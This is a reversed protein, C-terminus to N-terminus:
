VHARGIERALDFPIPQTAGGYRSSISIPTENLYISITSDGATSSVGRIQLQANGETGSAQISLGAVARSLDDVNSIATSNLTAGSLVSISAPVARLNESRKQATVVIEELGASPTEPDAPAAQAPSLVFQAAVGFVFCLKRAISSM